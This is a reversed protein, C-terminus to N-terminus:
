TFNQLVTNINTLTFNTANFTKNEKQKLSDFTLDVSAKLSDLASDPIRIEKNYNGRFPNAKPSSSIINRTGSIIKEDYDRFNSSRNFYVSQNLSSKM